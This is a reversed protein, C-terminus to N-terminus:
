ANVKNVPEKEKKIIIYQQFISFVSTTIWYIGIAAPWTRLFFVTILPLFYLMQKQMMEGMQAAKDSGNNKKPAPSMMKTQIFQAIGALVAVVLNAKSIDILGLFIPNITGPDPIFAYLDSMSEPKLGNFVVWYFAILVMFQIILPFYMGLPNIKERKYLDLIEKTQKEKDDKFKKQIEKIKGQLETMIKQSKISKVMVPYILIRILITLIIIALGFDHSPMYQYILVLANFLPQYLAIHFLDGIFHM